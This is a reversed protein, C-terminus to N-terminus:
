VEIKLTNKAIEAFKESLEGNQFRMEQAFNRFSVLIVAGYLNSQLLTEVQYNILTNRISQSLAKSHDFLYFSEKVNSLHAQLLRPALVAKKRTSKANGSYEVM